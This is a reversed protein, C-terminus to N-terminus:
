RGHTGVPGKEYGAHDNQYPGHRTRVKIIRVRPLENDVRAGRDDCEQHHEKDLICLVARRAYNLQLEVFQEATRLARSGAEDVKIVHRFILELADLALEQLQTFLECWEDVVVDVVNVALEAFSAPTMSQLVIFSATDRM